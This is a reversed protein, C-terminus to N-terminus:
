TKARVRESLDFSSKAANFLAVFMPNSIDVQHGAKLHSPILKEGVYIAQWLPLGDLLRCVEFANM